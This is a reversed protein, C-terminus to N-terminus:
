SEQPPLECIPNTEPDSILVRDTFLSFVKRDNDGGSLWTRSFLSWVRAASCNIVDRSRRQFCHRPQSIAQNGNRSKEQKSDYGPQIGVASTELVGHLKLTVKTHGKFSEISRGRHQWSSCLPLFM